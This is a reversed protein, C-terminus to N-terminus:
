AQGPMVPCLLHASVLRPPDTWNRTEPDFSMALEPKDSLAAKVKATHGLLAAHFFDFETTVNDLLLPLFQLSDGTACLAIASVLWSSGPLLPDAGADLLIRVVQMHGDHKPMTKKHEVTRHLPRYHHSSRSKVNPDAGNALLLKLAEPQGRLCAEMIPQWSSAAEPDAALISEITALDGNGAAQRLEKVQTM